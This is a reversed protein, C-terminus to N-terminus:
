NMHLNQKNQRLRENYLEQSINHNSLIIQIILIRQSNNFVYNQIDEMYMQFFHCELQQISFQANLLYLEM